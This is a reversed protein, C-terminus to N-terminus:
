HYCLTATFLFTGLYNMYKQLRFLGLQVMVIAKNISGIHMRKHISKGLKNRVFNLIVLQSFICFIGLGVFITVESGLDRVNMFGSVRIIGTEIIVGIITASTVLFVVRDSSLLGRHIFAHGGEADTM